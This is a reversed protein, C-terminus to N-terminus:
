RATQLVAGLVAVSLWGVGWRWVGLGGFEAGVLQPPPPPPLSFPSWFSPPFPFIIFCFRRVAYNKGVCLIKKGLAAFNAAHEATPSPAPTLAAAAGAEQSAKVYAAVTEKAKGSSM